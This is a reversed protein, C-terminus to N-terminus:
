ISACCDLVWDDHSAGEGGVALASNINKWWGRHVGAYSIVILFAIAVALQTIRLSYQLKPNNFLGM